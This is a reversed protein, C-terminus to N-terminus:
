PFRPRPGQLNAAAAAAEAETEDYRRVHEPLELLATLAEAQARAEALAAEAREREKEDDQVEVVIGALVEECSKKADELTAYGAETVRYSLGEITYGWRIISCGATVRGTATLEVKIPNQQKSIVLKIMNSLTHTQNNHNREGPRQHACRAQSPAQAM